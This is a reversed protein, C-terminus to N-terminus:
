KKSSKKEEYYNWCEDLLESAKTVLATQEQSAPLTEIWQCMAYAQLVLPYKTINVPKDTRNMKDGEKEKRM